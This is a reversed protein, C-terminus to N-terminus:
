FLIFLQPLHQVAVEQRWMPHVYVLEVGWMLWKGWIYFYVCVCFVMLILERSRYFESNEFRGKALCFEAISMSGLHM